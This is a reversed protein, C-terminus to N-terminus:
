TELKKMNEKHLIVDALRYRWRDLLIAVLILSGKTASVLNVSVGQLTLANDILGLLLAGGLLGLPKGTGGKFSCGGLIAGAIAMTVMGLGMGNSVANQRGATILGAVAALVGAIVFALIIMRDTRIGSIFAAQRNGGTLKFKRGFTTKRFMMEFVFFILLFMVTAAQLNGIHGRGLFAYVNHLGAISLPVFFLILGRLVIQTSLTFLFSNAKVKAVFFGNFWGLAAGLGLTFIIGLVPGFNFSTTLLIVIGPAFALVADGSLDLEGVMMVIGQALVLLALISTHFLVNLLNRSSFFAPTFFVNFLVFAFLLVWVLNDLLTLLIKSQKTM